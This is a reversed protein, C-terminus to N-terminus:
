NKKQKVPEASPKLWASLAMLEAVLDPFYTGRKEKYTM